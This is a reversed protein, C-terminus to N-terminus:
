RPTHLSQSMFLRNGKLHKAGPPIFGEREREGSDMEDLGLVAAVAPQSRTSFSLAILV